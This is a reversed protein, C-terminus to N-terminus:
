GAPIPTPQYAILMWEDGERVWVSLTQNDISKPQGAVSVLATLRSHLLATAGLDTVREETVELSHYVIGGGRMKDILVAKDDQKANAHMFVLRDSLMTALSTADGARLAACRAKERALIDDTTSM